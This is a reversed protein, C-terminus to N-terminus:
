EMASRSSKACAMRLLAELKENVPIIRSGLYHLQQTSLLLGQGAAAATAHLEDRVVGSGARRHDQYHHKQQGFLVPLLPQKKNTAIDNSTNSTDFNKSVVEGETISRRISFFLLPLKWSLLCVGAIVAGLLAQVVSLVEAASSPGDGGVIMLILSLAALSGLLLQTVQDLRRVYPRVAIVLILFAGQFVVVAIMGNRIADACTTSAQLIRSLGDVSFSSSSGDTPDNNNNNPMVDLFANAAVVTSAGVAAGMAVNLGLEVICMYAHPARYPEVIDEFRQLIRQARSRDESTTVSQRNTSPPLAWEWRPSVFWLGVHTLHLTIDAVVQSVRSTTKSKRNHRRNTSKTRRQKTANCRLPFRYLIYYVVGVFLAMVLVLTVAGMATSGSSGKGAVLGVASTAIPQLVMSLPTILPGPLKRCAYRGGQSLVATLEKKTMLKRWREVRSTQPMAKYHRIGFMSLRYWLLGVLFLVVVVVDGIVTGAAFSLIGDDDQALAIDLMLPNDAPTSGITGLVDQRATQISDVAGACAQLLRSLALLSQMSAVVSPVSIPQLVVIAAGSVVIGSAAAVQRPSLPLVGTNGPPVPQYTPPPPNTSPGPPMSENCLLTSIISAVSFTALTTPGNKASITMRPDAASVVEGVVSTTGVAAYPLVAYNTAAAASSPSMDLAIVPCPESADATSTSCPGIMHLEVARPKSIPSWSTCDGRMLWGASGSLTSTLPASLLISSAADEVSVVADQVSAVTAAGLGNLGYGAGIVSAGRGLRVIGRSSITVRVGSVVGSSWVLANGAAVRVEGGTMVIVTVDTMVESSKVWFAIPPYTFDVVSNDSVIITSRTLSYSSIASMDGVVATCLFTSNGQFTIRLGDTSGYIMHLYGAATTTVHTNIFVVTAQIVVAPMIAIPATLLGVVSSQQGFVGPVGGILVDCNVFTVLSNTANTMSAVLASGNALNVSCNEIDFVTGIVLNGGMTFLASSAIILTSRGRAIISINIAIQNPIIIGTTFLQTIDYTCAGYVIALSSVNLFSQDDIDLICDTIPNVISVVLMATKITLSSARMRTVLGSVAVSSGVSYDTYFMNTNNLFLNSHDLIRLVAGQLSTENSTLFFSGGPSALGRLTSRIITINLGTVVTGFMSFMALKNVSGALSEVILTANHVLVDIALSSSSSSTDIVMCNLTEICELQMGPLIRFTFRQLAPTTQLYLLKVNNLVSVTNDVVSSADTTTSESRNGLTITVSSVRDEGGVDRNSSSMSIIGAYLYTLIPSLSGILIVEHTCRTTADGGCGLAVALPSATLTLRVHLPDSTSGQDSNSRTNATIHFVVRNSVVVSNNCVFTYNGSVNIVKLPYGLTSVYPIETCDIMVDSSSSQATVEWVSSLLNFTVLLFLLATKWANSFGQTM